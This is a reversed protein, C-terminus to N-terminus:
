RPEQFLHTAENEIPRACPITRRQALDGNQKHLRITRVASKAMMFQSGHKQSRGDLVAPQAVASVCVILM